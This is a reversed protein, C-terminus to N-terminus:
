RGGDPLGLVQRRQYVATLTRGTHESAERPPLTRMVKDEEPTWYTWFHAPGAARHRKLLKALSDGGPLGRFGGKLAGNINVWVEGPADAV